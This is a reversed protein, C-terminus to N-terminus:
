DTVDTDFIMKRCSACYFAEIQFQTLSHKAATIIGVGVIKDSLSRKRERMGTCVAEEMGPFSAGKM